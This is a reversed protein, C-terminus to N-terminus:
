PVVRWPVTYGCEEIIQMQVAGSDGPDFTIPTDVDVITYALTHGDSTRTVEVNERKFGLPIPHLLQQRIWDPQFYNSELVAANFQVEGKITRVAFYNETNGHTIEWRHGLVLREAEGHGLTLDTQIEFYIGIQNGDGTSRIIDLATVKPGGTADCEYGVRPSRLWTFPTVGDQKTARIRLLKRPMLLRSRIEMDTAAGRYYQNTEGQIKQNLTRVPPDTGVVGGFTGSGLISTGVEDQADLTEQSLEKVAVAIPDAMAMDTLICSCGLTWRVYLLDIGDPTYVPTRSGKLIETLHMRVGNYTIEM